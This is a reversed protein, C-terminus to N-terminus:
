GLGLLGWLAAAATQATPTLLGGGIGEVVNRLSKGAEQVIVRNPSPKALQAKITKVDAM